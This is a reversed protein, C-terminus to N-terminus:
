PGSYFFFCLIFLWRIWWQGVLKLTLSTLLLALLHLLARSCLSYHLALLCTLPALSCAFPRALPRTSSDTTKTIRAWLTRNTEDDNLKTHCGTTTYLFQLLHIGFYCIRATIMLTTQAHELIHINTPLKGPGLLFLSLYLSVSFLFSQFLRFTILNAM